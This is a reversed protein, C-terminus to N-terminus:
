LNHALGIYIYLVGIGKALPITGIGQYHEPHIVLFCCFCGQFFGANLHQIACFGILFAADFPRMCRGKKIDRKKYPLLRAASFFWFSFGKGFCPLFTKIHGSVPRKNGASSSNQFSPM